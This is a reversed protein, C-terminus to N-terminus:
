NNKENVKKILDEATEILSHLKPLAQLMEKKAKPDISSTSDISGEINGDLEFLRQEEEFTLSDKRKNLETYETEWELLEQEYHEIQKGIRTVIGASVGRNDTEEGRTNDSFTMACDKSYVLNVDKVEVIAEEEKGTIIFCPFGSRQSLVKEIVDGGDYDLGGQLTNLRYDSVLAQAGSKFIEAVLDDLSDPLEVFPIVKFDGAMSETFEEIDRIDEDVYAITNM